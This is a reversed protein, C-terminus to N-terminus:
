APSDADARPVATEPAPAPAPPPAPPTPPAPPPPAAVAAAAAERRRTVWMLTVADVVVHALMPPVLSGSGDRLLSMVLSVATAYFPYLWLARRPVVHVLGGLCTAGWIRLGPGLAGRFLLEETVGALLAVVLAEGVSLPGLLAGGAEAARGMPKWARAGVRTLAALVLAFGLGAALEKGQAAREGFLTSSGGSFVAYGVAFLGVIGYFALAGRLLSPRPCAPAPLDTTM